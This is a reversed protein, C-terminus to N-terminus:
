SIPDEEIQIITLTVGISSVTSGSTNRIKAYGIRSITTDDNYGVLAPGLRYASTGQITLEAFIGANVPAPDIAPRAADDQQSESAAYLTLICPSTAQVKLIVFGTFATYTAFAFEGDNLAGTSVSSTVRSSLGSVKRPVWASDGSSYALVQGDEINEGSVLSSVDSLDSFSYSKNTVTNNVISLVQGDEPDQINVDAFNNITSEFNVNVWFGNDYKLIEGDVPSSITVDGLDNINVNSLTLGSNIWKSGNYILYEGEVPSSIQVDSLDTLSDYYPKNTWAGLNTDYALIERDVPSSIIVDSLENINFTLSTNRFASLSADYRLVQANLPLEIDVEELDSFSYVFNQDTWNGAEAQYALIAGDQVPRFARGSDPEAIFPALVKPYSFSNSGITTIQYTGNVGIRTEVEITVTDGTLFNHPSETTIIVTNAQVAVSNIIAVSSSTLVIDAIDDFATSPAVLNGGVTAGDGIYLKNADVTYIPEGILPVFTGESREAETGRRLQLAM